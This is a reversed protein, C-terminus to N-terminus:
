LEEKDKTASLYEQWAAVLAAEKKRYANGMAAKLDILKWNYATNIETCKRNYADLLETSM